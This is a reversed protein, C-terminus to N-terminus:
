RLIQGEPWTIRHTTSVSRESGPGMEFAWQLVGRKDDVADTDPAPTARYTIVLDEQESYPVRDRLEVPWTRATLNELTIAVEETIENSRSIIGRDAEGRNLVRRTLQLGEIACFGIEAEAGAPIPDLWGRGVLGGEVFRLAEPSGLLPEGTDNTVRAVLFATSELLPVARAVVEAELTIEDFPLRVEDAGSAVDVPDQWRYTVSLGQPLATMGAAVASEAVPAPMPAEDLSSSMRAAPRYLDDADTIRRLDPWLTSPDIAGSIQQTSLTLDIGEWNEGSRQSIRASRAIMLAPAPDLTLRLDYAPRWTAAAPFTIALPAETLPAEATVDL